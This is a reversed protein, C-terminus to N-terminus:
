NCMFIMSDTANGFSRVWERYYIYPHTFFFSFLFFFFSVNKNEEYIRDLQRHFRMNGRLKDLDYVFIKTVSLIIEPLYKKVDSHLRRINTIKDDFDDSLEDDGMGGRGVGGGGGGIEVPGGQSGLSGGGLNSPEVYGGLTVPLLNTGCILELAKTYHRTGKAFHDFFQAFRMAIELNSLM